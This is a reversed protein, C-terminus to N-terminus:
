FPEDSDFLKLQNRRFYEEEVLDSHAPPYRELDPKFQHTRILEILANELLGVIKKITKLETPTLIYIKQM